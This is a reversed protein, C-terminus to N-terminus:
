VSTPVPTATAGVVPTPSPTPVPTARAGPPLTDTPTPALTRASSNSESRTARTERPRISRTSSRWTEALYSRPTSSTRSNQLKNGGSVGTDADEPDNPTPRDDGLYIGLDGNFFMSNSLIANGTHGFLDLAVGAGGNFSIANGAGNATGGISSDDSELVYVGHAVNGLNTMGSGTGILNSQINVAVSSDGVFIVSGSNGSIVNGTGASSGGISINTGCCFIEVRHSGNGLAVSGTVDTGIYNGEVVHNTPFDGVNIGVLGNASPGASSGNLDILIVANTGQAPTNSNASAGPQAYGDIVVPATITPLESTLAVSHPGEGEINFTITDLGLSSNAATM